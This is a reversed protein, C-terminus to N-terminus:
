RTEEHARKVAGLKELTGLRYGGFAAIALVTVTFVGDAATGVPLFSAASPRTVFLIVLAGFALFTMARARRIAHALADREAQDVAEDDPEGEAAPLDPRLGAIREVLLSRVARKRLM